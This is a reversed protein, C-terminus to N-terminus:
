VGPIQAKYEEATANYFNYDGLDSDSKVIYNVGNHVLYTNNKIFTPCRLKLYKLSWDVTDPNLSNPRPTTVICEQQFQTVTFSKVFDVRQTEVNYFTILQKFCNFDNFFDEFLDVKM